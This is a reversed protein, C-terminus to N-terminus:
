EDDDSDAGRGGRNIFKYCRPPVTIGLSESVKVLAPMGYPPYLKDDIILEALDDRGLLWLWASLKSISRSASLGRRDYAKDWGFNLYDLFDQAAENIDTIQHWKEETAESRLFPKAKDFSLHNILVECRFDCKDISKKIKNVIDDQSRKLSLNNNTIFKLDVLIREIMGSLTKTPYVPPTQTDM